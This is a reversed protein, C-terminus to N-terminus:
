WQHLQPLLRAGQVLLGACDGESHSEILHLTGALLQLLSDAPFHSYIHSVARIWMTRQGGNRTQRCHGDRAFLVWQASVTNAPLYFVGVM